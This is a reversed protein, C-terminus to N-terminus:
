KKEKLELSALWAELITGLKRFGLLRNNILILNSNHTRLCFDRSTMEWCMTPRVGAIKQAQVKLAFASEDIIVGALLKQRSIERGLKKFASEFASPARHKPKMEVFGLGHRRIAEAIIHKETETCRGALVAIADARSSSVEGTNVASEESDLKLELGNERLFDRALPTIIAKPQVNISNYGKAVARQVVEATILRPQLEITEPTTSTDKKLESLIPTLVKVIQESIAEVLGELEKEGM